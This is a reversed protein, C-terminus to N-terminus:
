RLWSFALRAQPCFFFTSRLGPNSRPGTNPKRPPFASFGLQPHGAHISSAWFNSSNRLQSSQFLRKTYRFYVGPKTRYCHLLAQVLVPWRHSYAVSSPISAQCVLQLCFLLFHRCPPEFGHCHFTFLMLPGPSCFALSPARM